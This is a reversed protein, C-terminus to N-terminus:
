IALLDPEGKDLEPLTRFPLHYSTLGTRILEFVFLMEPLTLGESM